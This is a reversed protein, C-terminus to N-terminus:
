LNPADVPISVVIEVRRNQAQGEETENDAIPKFSGHGATSLDESDIGIRYRFIRVVTSARVSSIEWSSHFQHKQYEIPTSDAHGSVIVQMNPELERKLIYGIKELVESGREGPYFEGPDFLISGRVTICIGENTWKLWVEEKEIEEGLESSLFKYLPKLKEIREEPLTKELSKSLAAIQNDRDEIDQRLLKAAESLKEAALDHSAKLDEMKKEAEALKAAESETKQKLQSIEEEYTAKLREIQKELEELKKGKSEIEQRFEQINVNEDVTAPNSTNAGVEVQKEEDRVASVHEEQPEGEVKFIFSGRRYSSIHLYDSRVAFIAEVAEGRRIQAAGSTALINRLDMGLDLIQQDSFGTQRMVNVIDDASLALVDPNYLPIVRIDAVQEQEPKIGLACGSLSLILLLLIAHFKEM